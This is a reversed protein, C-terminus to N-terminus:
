PKTNLPLYIHYGSTFSAGGWFGGELTYGGGSLSGADPQGATAGLTYGGGANSMTGGGDVTWWDLTYGPVGARTVLATSLLLLLLVALLTKTAHAPILKMVAEEHVVVPM